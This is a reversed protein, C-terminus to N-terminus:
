SGLANIAVAYSYVLFFSSVIGSFVITLATYLTYFNMELVEMYLYAHQTIVFIAIPMLLKLTKHITVRLAMNEIRHSDLENM